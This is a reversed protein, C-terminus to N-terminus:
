ATVRRRATVPGFRDPGSLGAIPERVVAGRVPDCHIAHDSDLAIAAHDDFFLLDGRRESGQAEDGLSEAQLDAFRPAVIGAMMLSLFILGDHSVGAGSRGGPVFPVGLLAEGIAVFDGSKSVPCPAADEASVFGKGLPIWGSADAAPLRTGMPLTDLAAASTAPKARVATQLATVILPCKAPAGLQSRYIYGVSGDVCNIGWCVDGVIELVDFREGILCESLIESCQKDTYLPGRATVVHAIPAAYHPAFVRDALRVDALDRRAAQIRSDIHASRGSLAFRSRTQGNATTTTSINAPSSIGSSQM